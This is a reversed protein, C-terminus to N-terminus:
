ESLERRIRVTFQTGVGLESHVSLECGTIDIVRKVLTLGLGNGQISHSSDGQYFKDFIHKGVDNSIGCGSDAVTVAAYESEPVVSVKVTGGKETFKIANSILNNWILTMMEPDSCVKVSDAIDTEINLEKKEWEAEFSILCQCLQESLDYVEKAPTIQQNDLKNLKLINTILATLNKSASLIAGAYEKREEESLIPSTLMTSYNQIISLPTKIEHSVNAIFDTRLTEISALAEALSNFCEIVEDFNDIRRVGHLPKVRVSFDGQMLRDAADLIRKSPREVMFRRRLSDILTIIASIILVNLFTLLITDEINQKTLVIETAEKLTLFFLIMCCTTVSAILVFFMFYRYISFVPYRSRKKM